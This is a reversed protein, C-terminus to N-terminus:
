WMPTPGCAGSSSDCDTQAHGGGVLPQLARDPRGTLGEARRLVVADPFVGGVTHRQEVPRQVELLLKVAPFLGTRFLWPQVM